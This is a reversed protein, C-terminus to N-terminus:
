VGGSLSDGGTPYHNTVLAPGSARQAPPRTYIFAVFFSAPIAHESETYCQSVYTGRYGPPSGSTLITHYDLCPTPDM